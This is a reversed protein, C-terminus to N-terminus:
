VETRECVNMVDDMFIRKLNAESFVDPAAAEYERTRCAELFRAATETAQAPSEYDATFLQPVDEGMRWVASGKRTVALVPKETVIYEFLKAPITGTMVTLMLLGDAEALRKMMDDRPVSALLELRWSHKELRARCSEVEDRDDKNLDGLLTVSCPHGFKEIASNLVDFLYAPKRTPRSDTFRGAHLLRIPRAPAVSEPKQAAATARNAIRPYGNTVVVTKDRTFALRKELLEKWVDSTVVVRDARSLIRKEIRGERMQQFKYKRLLPKLPEDLWGDRMDAVFKTRFSEALRSAAVHVSDPPGSSLVCVPDGAYETVLPHTAARKAWVISPDPNFAVYAFFRRVKNPKRHPTKPGNADPYLALPDRVTIEILGDNEEVGDATGARLIVVQYGGDTLWRAFRDVRYNGVNMPQRWFPAVILVTRAATTKSGTPDMM